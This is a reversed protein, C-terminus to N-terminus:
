TGMHRSQHQHVPFTVTGAEGEEVKGKYLPNGTSLFVSFYRPLWPAPLHPSSELLQLAPSIM